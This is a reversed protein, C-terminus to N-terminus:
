NGEFTPCGVRVPSPPQPILPPSKHSTTPSSRRTKWRTSCPHFLRPWLLTGHHKRIVPRIVKSISNTLMPVPPSLRPCVCPQVVTITQHIYVLSLSEEKYALTTTQVTNHPRRPPSWWPTSKDLVRSFNLPMSCAADGLTVVYSILTVPPAVRPTPCSPRM